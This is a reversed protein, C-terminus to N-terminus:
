INIGKNILQYIDLLFYINQAAYFSFRCGKIEDNEIVFGKENDFRWEVSTKMKILSPHFDAINTPSLGSSRRRKLPCM